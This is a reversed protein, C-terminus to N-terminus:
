FKRRFLKLVAGAAFFLLFLKWFRAHPSGFVWSTFEPSFIHPWLVRVLGAAVLTTGFFVLLGFGFAALMTLIALFTGFVGLVRVGKLRVATRSKWSEGPEPSIVEAELAQSM